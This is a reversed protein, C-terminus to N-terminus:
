FLTLISRIRCQWKSLTQDKYAAWVL